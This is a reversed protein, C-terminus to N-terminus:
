AAVELADRRAIFDVLMAARLQQWATLELPTLADVVRYRETVDPFVLLPHDAIAAAPLTVGEAIKRSRDPIAKKM